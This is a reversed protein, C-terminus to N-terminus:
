ATKVEKLKPEINGVKTFRALSNILEAQEHVEIAILKIAEKDADVEIMTLLAIALQEHNQCDKKFDEIEFLTNNEDTM